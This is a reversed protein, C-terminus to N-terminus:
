ESKAPRVQIGRGQYIKIGKIKRVGKKMDESVKAADVTLYDKPVKTLDEVDWKWPLTIVLTGTNPISISEDIEATTVETITRERLSRDIASLETLRPEFAAELAALLEKTEKTAESKETKQAKIERSLAVMVKTSEVLWNVGGEKIKLLAEGQKVIDM